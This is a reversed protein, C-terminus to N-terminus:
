QRENELLAQVNRLRFPGSLDMELSYGAIVMLNNSFM